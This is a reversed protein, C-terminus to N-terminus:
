GLVSAWATPTTRGPEGGPSASVRFHHLKFEPWLWLEDVLTAGVGFGTTYPSRDIRLGQERETATMAM